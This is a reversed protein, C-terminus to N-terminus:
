LAQGILRVERSNAYTSELLGAYITRLREMNPASSIQKALPVASLTTIAAQDFEGKQLALRARLWQIMCQRRLMNMPTSEEADAILREAEATDNNDLFVMAQRIQCIDPSLRIYAVDEEHLNNQVITLAEDILESDLESTGVDLLAQGRIHSPVNKINMAKRAYIAARDYDGITYLASSCSIYTRALLIPDNIERGLKVSWAIYKEVAMDDLSESALTTGLWFYGQLVKLVDQNKQDLSKSITGISKVMEDVDSLTVTGTTFYNEVHLQFSKRLIATDYLMEPKADASLVGLMLPSIGLAKAVARRTFVDHLGKGHSEMYSVKVRSVRLLAALEEQTIGQQEREAQIIKGLKRSEENLNYLM